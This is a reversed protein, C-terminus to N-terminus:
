LNARAKRGKDYYGLKAKLDTTALVFLIISPLVHFYIRSTINM